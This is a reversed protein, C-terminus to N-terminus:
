QIEDSYDYTFYKMDIEYSDGKPYILKSFQEKYRKSDGYPALGMVKYEGENPKFGLFATFASYLMGLSHPFNVTGLKTLRNGEGYYMSTTEWEGVGDVSLITAKDFRSTYYSYAVHSLHHDGYIVKTNEGTISNLTTSLKNYEKKNFFCLPFFM